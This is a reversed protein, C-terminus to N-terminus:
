KVVPKIEYKPFSNLDAMNQEVYQELLFEKRDCHSSFSFEIGDNEVSSSSFYYEKFNNNYGRKKDGLIAILIAQRDKMDYKLWELDLYLLCKEYKTDNFNYTNYAIKKNHKQCGGLLISATLFILYKKTM